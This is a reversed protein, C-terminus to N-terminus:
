KKNKIRQAKLLLGLKFAKAFNLGPNSLEVALEFVQQQNTLGKSERFADKIRRISYSRFNFDAFKSAERLLLKYLHLVVPM